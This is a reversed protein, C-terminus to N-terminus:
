KDREGLIREVTEKKMMVTFCNPDDEVILRAQDETFLGAKKHKTTYGMANKCLFHTVKKANTLEVDILYYLDSKGM